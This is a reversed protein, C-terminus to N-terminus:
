NITIENNMSILGQKELAAKIKESKASGAIMVSLMKELKKVAVMALSGVILQPNGSDNILGEIEGDIANTVYTFDNSTADSSEMSAKMIALARPTLNKNLASFVFEANAHIEAQNREDTTM